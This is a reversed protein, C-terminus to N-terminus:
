GRLESKLAKSLNVQLVKFEEELEERKKSLLEIWNGPKFTKIKGDKDTQFVDRYIHIPGDETERDVWSETVCIVDYLTAVGFAGTKYNHIDLIINHKKDNAWIQVSKEKSSNFDDHRKKIDSISEGLKLIISVEDKVRESLLTIGKGANSLMQLDDALKKPDILKTTDM